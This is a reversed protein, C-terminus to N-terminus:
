GSQSKSNGSLSGILSECRTALHNFYAGQQLLTPVEGIGVFNAVKAPVSVINQVCDEWIAGAQAKPNPSSFIAAHLRDIPYSKTMNLLLSISHPSLRTSLITSFGELAIAGSTDLAFHFSDPCFYQELLTISDNERLLPEWTPYIQELIARQISPVHRRVVVAGHPLPNFTHHRFRPPLLGLSDLPGCLLSIVASVDLIPAQLQKIIERVPEDGGHDM